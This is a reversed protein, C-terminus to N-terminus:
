GADNLFITGTRAERRITDARFIAGTAACLRRRLHSAKVPRIMWIEAMIERMDRGRTRSCNAGHGITTVM